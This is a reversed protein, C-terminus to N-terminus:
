TVDGSDLSVSGGQCVMIHNPQTPADDFFAGTHNHLCESSAQEKALPNPTLKTHIKAVAFAKGILSFLFM